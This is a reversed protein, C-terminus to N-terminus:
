GRWFTCTRIVSREGERVPRSACVNQLDGPERACQKRVHRSDEVVGLGAAVQSYRPRRHQRGVSLFPDASPQLNESSLQGARWYRQRRKAIVGRPAVPLVRPRFSTAEGKGYPEKM